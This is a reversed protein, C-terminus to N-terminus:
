HHGAGVAVGPAPTPAPPPLDDESVAIHYGGPGELAWLFIFFITTVLGAIVLYGTHAVGASMLILGNGFIFFGAGAGLPM